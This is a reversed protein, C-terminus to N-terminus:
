LTCCAMSKVEDGFCRRERQGAHVPLWWWMCVSLLEVNEHGIAVRQDLKQCPRRHFVFSLQHRVVARSSLVFSLGFPDVLWCASAASTPQPWMLTTPSKNPSVSVVVCRRVRGNIASMCSASLFRFVARCSTPVFSTLALSMSPTRNLLITNHPVTCHPAPCHSTNRNLPHHMTICVSLWLSLFPHVFGFQISCVLM